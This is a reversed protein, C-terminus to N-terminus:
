LMEQYQPANDELGRRLATLWLERIWELDYAGWTGKIELDIARVHEIADAIKAIAADGREARDRGTNERAGLYDVIGDLVQASYTWLQREARAPPKENARMLSEAAEIARRFAQVARAIDARKRRGKRPEMQPRMVDAYDLVLASADAIARYAATMAPACAPHRGQATASVAIEPDSAVNKACRVFTELNVPYALLSFAGFTLCSISTIGLAHYASMDRAVIAPSAFALGGFLIADAYYEFVHCRGGFVEVYQKLSEFYRPNIECAPDDIAHSYCRERPAWEVWVNALPKLGPYPDITDHYALYAVPPASAEGLSEAIANVVEMYQHQPALERCAGCRCWAGRWVDAGWIHVLENEPYEAVYRLAGDRVLDIAARNSVCLNGRPQRKGDDDAPFMSPDSEFRERPLLIQLVHGGYEAGIGHDRLLPAIEDIRLRTDHAHRIYSFANAGRRAMWPIFERDHRLHLELRDAFNYNWTMIDSVFARRAFSPTVTYPEIKRLRQADIRPFVPPVGPPFNAGLKELLDAAGHILGRDSGARISISDEGARAIAFSDGALTTGASGSAGESEAFDLVMERADLQADDQVPVDRGIM